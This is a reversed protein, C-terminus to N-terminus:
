NCLLMKVVPTPPSYRPYSPALFTVPRLRWRRTGLAQYKFRPDEARVDLVAVADLGQQFRRRIAVRPAESAQPYVRAVGAL